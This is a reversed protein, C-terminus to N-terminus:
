GPRGTAAFTCNRSSSITCDRSWSHATENSHRDPQSRVQLPGNTHQCLQPTRFRTVGPQLITGRVQREATPAPSRSRVPMVLKSPQPEVMSSCGCSVARGSSWPVSTGSGAIAGNTSAYGVAQQGTTRLPRCADRPTACSPLADAKPASPGRNSDPYGSQDLRVSTTAPLTTTARGAPGAPVALM